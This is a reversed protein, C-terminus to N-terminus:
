NTCMMFMTGWETNQYGGYGGCKGWINQIYAMCRNQDIYNWGDPEGGRGADRDMRINGLMAHTTFIKLKAVLLKGLFDCKKGANDVPDTGCNFAILKTPFSQGTPVTMKNFFQSCWTQAAIWYM